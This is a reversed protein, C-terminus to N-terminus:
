VWMWRAKCRHRGYLTSLSASRPEGQSRRNGSRGRITLHTNHFQFHKNIKHIVHQRRIHREGFAVDVGHRAAQGSLAHGTQDPAVVPVSM